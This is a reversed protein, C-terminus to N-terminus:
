DDLIFDLLPLLAPDDSDTFDPQTLMRGLGQEVVLATYLSRCVGSSQRQLGFHMSGVDGGASRCRSAAERGANGDDLHACRIQLSASLPPIPAPDRARPPVLRDLNM